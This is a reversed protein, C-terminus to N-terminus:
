HGYVFSLLLLLNALNCIVLGIIIHLGWNKIHIIRIFSFKSFVLLNIIYILVPVIMLTFIFGFYKEVKDAFYMLHLYYFIMTLIAPIYIQTFSQKKRNTVM